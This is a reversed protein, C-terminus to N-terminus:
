ENWGRRQERVGLLRNFLASKGVNPRGVIAVRPLDEEPLEQMFIPNSSVPPFSLILSSFHSLVLYLTQLLISLVASFIM